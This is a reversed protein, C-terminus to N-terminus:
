SLGPTPTDPEQLSALLAAACAAEHDAAIQMIQAYNPM